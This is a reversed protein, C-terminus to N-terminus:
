NDSLKELIKKKTVTVGRDLLTQRLQVTFVNKEPCRAQLALVDSVSIDRTEQYYKVAENFARAYGLTNIRFVKESNKRGPKKVLFCPFIYPITIGNITKKEVGIYARFGKAIHVSRSLSDKPKTKNLAVASYEDVSRHVITQKAENKWKEDLAYALRKAESHDYKSFAFYKQRYEKASGITRAVRFGSFGTGSQDQNYEFVAM